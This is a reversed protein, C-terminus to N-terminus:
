QGPLEDFITTDVPDFNTIVFVAELNNFDVAPQVIAQQFLAAESRQVDIIRGIPIDAPYKGGLGSTLVLDGITVPAELTIWDMLLTSGLGGGQLVGTARSEGLRAAVSSTNDTLLLVQSSRSSSRYIIGVLGRTSEVPMGVVVGDLIGKDIILSRFSPSTDRAIVSALVRDLTPNLSVYDFYERLIQNEAQVERLAELERRLMDNEQRLQEIQVGALQLDRPGALADAYADTRGATWDMLAAIPNRIFAFAGEVGRTLDMVLLLLALGFLLGFTIWRIRQTSDNNGGLNM